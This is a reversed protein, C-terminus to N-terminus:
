LFIEFLEEETPNRIFNEDKILDIVTNINKILTWNTDKIPFITNECESSPIFYIEKKWVRVAEGNEYKVLIEYFNKDDDKAYIKYGTFEFIDLKM